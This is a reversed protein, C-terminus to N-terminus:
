PTVNVVGTEGHLTCQYTFAGLTTFQRAVYSGGVTLAINAPAGTLIDFVLNHQSAISFQVFSGARITISAPIFAPVGMTNPNVVIASSGNAAPHVSVYIPPSAVHGSYVVGITASGVSRGYIVTGGAVAVSSDSSTTHLLGTNEIAAGGLTGVISTTEGVAIDSRAASVNLTLTGSNTGNKNGADAGDNSTPHALVGCSAACAVMLAAASFAALRNRM